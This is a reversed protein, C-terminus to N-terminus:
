VYMPKNDALNLWGVVIRYIFWILNAFLVLWGIFILLTIMGVVAWLLSFWFTRIQWRYHSELWTNRVDDKKVYNMIIAVLWTIGVILSAAYLGYIIMAIKKEPEISRETITTTPEMAARGTKGTVTLTFPCFVVAALGAPAIELM